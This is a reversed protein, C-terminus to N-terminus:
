YYRTTVNGNGCGCLCFFLHSVPDLMNLFQQLEGFTLNSIYM